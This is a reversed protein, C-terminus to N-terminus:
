NGYNNIKPGNGNVNYIVNKIFNKNNIWTINDPTQELLIDNDDEIIDTTAIREALSNM